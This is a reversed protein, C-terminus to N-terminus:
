VTQRVDVQRYHSSNSFFIMLYFLNRHYKSTLSCFITFHIFYMELVASFTSHVINLDSPIPYFAGLETQAPSRASIFDLFLYTVDPISVGTCLAFQFSKLSLRAQDPLTNITCFSLLVLMKDYKTYVYYFM